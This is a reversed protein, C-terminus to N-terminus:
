SLLTRVDKLKGLASANILGRHYNRATEIVAEPFRIRVRCYQGRFMADKAETTEVGKSTVSLDLCEDYNGMSYSTGKLIGSSPKGMSDL